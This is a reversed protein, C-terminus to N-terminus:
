VQVKVRDAFYLQKDEYFNYLLIFNELFKIFIFDTSLLSNNSLNNQFTSFTIETKLICSNNAM